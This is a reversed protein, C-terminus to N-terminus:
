FRSVSPLGTGDIIAKVKVYGTGTASVDGLQAATLDMINSFNNLSAATCNTVNTSELNSSDACVATNQTASCSDSTFKGTGYILNANSKLRVGCGVGTFNAGNGTGNSSTRNSANAMEFVQTSDNAYIHFISTTYNTEVSIQVVTTETGAENVKALVGITPPENGSDNKSLEALYWYGDKKGFYISMATGQTQSPVEYCSFYMPFSGVGPIDKLDWLKAEESVCAGQDSSSARGEFEAIRDDVKTLRELFDTPGDGYFRNKIESLSSDPISRLSQAKFGVPSQSEVPPKIAPADFPHTKEDKKGCALAVAFIGCSTISITSIKM